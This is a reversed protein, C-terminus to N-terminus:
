CVLCTGALILEPNVTERTRPKPGQEQRVIIEPNLEKLSKNEIPAVIAQRM